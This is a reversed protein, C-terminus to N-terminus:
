KKEKKAEQVAAEGLEKPTLSFLKAAAEKAAKTQMKSLLLDFYEKINLVTKM